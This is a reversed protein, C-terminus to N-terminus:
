TGPTPSAAGGAGPLAGSGPGAPEGAAARCSACRGIVTLQVHEVAFDGPVGCADLAGGPLAHLDDLRGCQRCLLHAHPHSTGLHYTRGTGPVHVAWVLGGAELTELTRYVTTLVIGHPSTARHLAEVTPHELDRIASMVRVRAETARLGHERLAARLVPEAPVRAAAPSPPAPM